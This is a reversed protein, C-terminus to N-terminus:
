RYGYPHYYPTVTTTSWGNGLPMTTSTGVGPITTTSWGNGLPMTTATGVGPITTSYWGNGLPMTTMTTPGYSYPNYYQASAPLQGGLLAAAFGCAAFCPKCKLAFM